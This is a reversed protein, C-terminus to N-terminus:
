TKKKQKEPHFFEKKVESWKSLCLACLHDAGEQLYAWGKPPEPQYSNTEVKMLCHACMWVKVVPM